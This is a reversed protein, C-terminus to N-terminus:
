VRLGGYLLHDADAGHGHDGCLVFQFVRPVDVVEFFKAINPILNAGFTTKGGTVDNATNTAGVIMWYFPFVSIFAALWLGALILLKPIASLLKAM